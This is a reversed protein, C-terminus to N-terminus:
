YIVSRCNRTKKNNKIFLKDAAFSSPFMYSIRKAAKYRGVYLLSDIDYSIM